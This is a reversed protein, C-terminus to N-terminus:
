NSIYEGVTVRAPRILEQKGNIDRQYGVQVVNIIQQDMAESDVPMTAVAEHKNPDFVVGTEDIQSVSYDKLLGQLQSNISEVGTRWNKDIAEWATKDSMAMAFSDALPTLKEIFSNIVKERSRVFDEELRRRSNLFEAKTRQLDDLQKIKESECDKLKKRLQNIKDKLTAEDTELESDEFQNDEEAEIEIEAEDNNENM